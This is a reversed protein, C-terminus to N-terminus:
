SLSLHDELQMQNVDTNTIEKLTGVSCKCFSPFGVLPVLEQM